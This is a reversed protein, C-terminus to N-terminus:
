YDKGGLPKERRMLFQVSKQDDAYNRLQSRAEQPSFGTKEDRKEETASAQQGEKQQNTEKGAEGARLDGEPLAGENKQMADTEKSKDGERPKQEQEQPEKNEEGEGEEPKGDGKGKGKQKQKDKQEQKQKQQEKLEDLRKQIFDRNEQLEQDNKSLKLASDFHDRADTWSKITQEPQKELIEDGKNYLTTALARYARKQVEVKDSKLAESFAKVATEYDKKELSAAGVGYILDPLSAPIQDKRYQAQYGKLWKEQLKKAEDNMEAQVQTVAPFIILFMLIAAVAPHTRQHVTALPDVPLAASIKMKKRSSPRIFLSIMLCIIGAFLPWQYREIPRSDKRIESKQRDLNSLIRNVTNQTLAQSALEVYEGGTIRAVEELTTSELRSLVIKGNEDRVFDNGSQPEPDPIQSGDSTGMGVPLILLHNDVAERAAKLAAADTEGGDSFIIMGHEKGTVTKITSLALDIAAGLSSGGRPITTHDLSQISEIVADHDTTLPAQLFARGAFAILGVRDGPLKELIDQAALKARTLRNPKVDDALMSKSTDIAIIINRGTQEEVREQIGIQPRTLAIIFLALALIQLGFHLGSWFVSAGGLLSNRLRESSVFAALAKQARLDAWIKLLAIVPLAFLLYAYSPSAFNM